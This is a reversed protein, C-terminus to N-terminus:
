RAIVRRVFSNSTWGIGTKTLIRIYGFCDEDNLEADVEIIIALDNISFSVKSIKASNKPTPSRDFLWVVGHETGHDRTIVDGPAFFRRM